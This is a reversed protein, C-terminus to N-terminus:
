MFFGVTINAVLRAISSLFLNLIQCISCSRCFRAFDVPDMVEGTCWPQTDETEKLFM